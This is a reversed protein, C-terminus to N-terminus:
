RESELIFNTFLRIVFPMLIIYSLFGVVIDSEIRNILFSIIVAIIFLILVLFYNNKVFRFSKGLCERIKLDYLVLYFNSFLFFLLIGIWGALFVCIFTIQAALLNFGFMKGAFLVGYNSVGWVAAYIITIIITILFSKGWFKRGNLFFESLTSTNSFGRVKTRPVSRADM